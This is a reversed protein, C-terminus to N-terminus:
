SPMTPLYFFTLSFPLFLSLVCPLPITLFPSGPCLFPFPLFAHGAVSGMGGAEDEEWVGLQVTPVIILCVCVLFCLFSAEEGGREFAYMDCAGYVHSSFLRGREFNKM